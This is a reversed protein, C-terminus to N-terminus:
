KYQGFTMSCIEIYRHVPTQTLSAAAYCGRHILNLKQQSLHFHISHSRMYYNSGIEKGWRMDILM